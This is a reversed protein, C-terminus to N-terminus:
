CTTWLCVPADNLPSLVFSQSGAITDGGEDIVEYTLTVTGTQDLLPNVTFTSSLNDTVTGSSSELLRVALRDGDGDTFGELLQSESVVYATDEQGQALDATASGEPLTNLYNFKVVKAHVNGHDSSDQFSEYSWQDYDPDYMNTHWAVVLGDDANAVAIPHTSRAAYESITVEPGVLHLKSNLLQGSIGNYTNAATEM